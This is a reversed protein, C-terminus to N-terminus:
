EHTTLKKERFIKKTLYRSLYSSGAGVVAGALVDTPYHKGLYMRSYGVSGAWLYAPVVVYWKRYQLSVTTAMAFAQSTHGSPFSRDVSPSASFIVGPYAEAPRTRDVTRKLIETITLSIGTCLLLDYGNHQVQKNQDIFGYALTGVVLIASMPYVSQSASKWVQSNPNPPNISKLIDVDINQAGAQTSIFLTLSWIITSLKKM